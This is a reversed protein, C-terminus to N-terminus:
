FTTGKEKLTPVTEEGSPELQEQKAVLLELVSVPVVEEKGKLVQKLKLVKHKAETEELMEQAM